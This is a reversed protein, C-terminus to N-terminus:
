VGYEKSRCMGKHTFYHVVRGGPVRDLCIDTFTNYQCTLYGVSWDGM